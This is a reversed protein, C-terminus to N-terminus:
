PRGQGPSPTPAACHTPCGTGAPWGGSWTRRTPPVHRDGGRVQDPAGAAELLPKLEEPVTMDGTLLQGHLCAIRTVRSGTVRDGDVGDRLWVWALRNAGLDGVQAGDVKGVKGVVLAGVTRKLSVEPLALLFRRAL